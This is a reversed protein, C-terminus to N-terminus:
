EISILNFTNLNYVTLGIDFTMSLLEPYDGSMRSQYSCLIM